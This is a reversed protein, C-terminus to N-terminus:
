TMRFSRTQYVECASALIHRGLLRSMVVDAFFWFSLIDDTAHDVQIGLFIANAFIVSLVMIGNACCEFDVLDQGHYCFGLFRM